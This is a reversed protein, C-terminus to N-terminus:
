RALRALRIARDANVSGKPARGKVIEAVGSQHLARATRPPLDAEQGAAYDVGEIQLRRRFRVIM